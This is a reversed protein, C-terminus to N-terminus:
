LRLREVVHDLGVVVRGGVPRQAELDLEQERFLAVGGSHCPPAVVAKGYSLEFSTSTFSLSVTARQAAPRATIM